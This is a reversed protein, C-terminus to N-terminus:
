DTVDGQHLRQRAEGCCLVSCLVASLPFLPRVKPANVSLASLKLPFVLALSRRNEPGATRRDEAQKSRLLCCLDNVGAPASRHTVKPHSSFIYQPECAPASPWMHCAWPLPLARPPCSDYVSFAMQKQAHVSTSITATCSALLM